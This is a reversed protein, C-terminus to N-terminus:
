TWPALPVACTCSMLACTLLWRKWEGRRLMWYGLLALSTALLLPAEPRFLTGVGVVLGTLAVLSWFGKGASGGSQFVERGADRGLTAVLVLIVFTLATFFMSWVETLPVAVYNATFPCVAALWLAALFVRKTNARADCLTVLLAALGGIVLCTALDVFVQALMVFIRAREGTRGTLAYVMALFAPYGPMRLDVPVAQGSIEMAYRGHKLWNAALQQYIVTDGSGAPYKLVFLLRLFAGALLATIPSSFIRKM